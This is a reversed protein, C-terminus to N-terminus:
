EGDRILQTISDVSKANLIQKVKNEDGLIQTLEALARLHSSSDKAALVVILQIKHKDDVLNVTGDLLLLSMGVQLVDPSPQAHALAIKDAINIYPGNEHVNSIIDDVYRQKVKGLDILPQAAKTIAQEWTMGSSSVGVQITKDTLLESLLPGYEGKHRFRVSPTLVEQIGTVLDQYNTIKTNAQVVELIASLNQSVGTPIIHNRILKKKLILLDNDSLISDVKIVPKNLTPVPVTSIVIDQGVESLEEYDRKTIPGVQMLEPIMTELQSKLLYSTGLGASCVLLASQKQVRQHYLEAGFYMSILGVEDDNLPESLLDEFPKLSLRTYLYIQRYQKKLKGAVEDKYQRHYEVRYFTAILHQFLKSQLKQEDQFKVQDLNKFTDIVKITARRIKRDIDNEGQHKRTSVTPSGLLLGELYYTEEPFSGQIIEHILDRAFEFEPQDHMQNKIFDNSPFSNTSLRLGQQLRNTVGSYFFSINLFSEYSFYHHLFKQVLTLWESTKEYQRWILSGPNTQQFFTILRQFDINKFVYNRITLEDGVLDYGNRSGALKIGVGKLLARVHHIDKLITSRSHATKQELYHITVPRDKLFLEWIILQERDGAKLRPQYNNQLNLKVLRSRSDDILHYGVGRVNQLPAIGNALLKKNLKAIVSYVSRKSISLKETLEDVSLAEEANLLLILVTKEKESLDIM